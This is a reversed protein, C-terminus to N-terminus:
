AILYKRDVAYQLIRKLFEYDTEPFAIGSGELASRANSTDFTLQCRLYGLYPQIFRRVKNVVFSHTGRDFEDPDVLTVPPMKPFEIDKVRLLTGISPPRDSTLHYTKGVSDPQSAIARVARTVFDIPVINFTEDARAPLVDLIGHVYLKFFPYIVNFETVEGTASDGVVISPRFITVPLGAAMATRVLREGEYKSAEYHNAHAPEPAMEDELSRYPRLSGPVYATSFHFHRELRGKELLDWAVRLAETTGGINIRQCQDQSGNLETLAAIHFFEVVERRLRDRDAPDLGLGPQTVDGEVARVRSGVLADLGLPALLKRARDQTSLRGKRRILLYLTRDTTDLLEHILRRGLAGTAGTIFLPRDSM